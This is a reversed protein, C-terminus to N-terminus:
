LKALNRLLRTSKKKTYNSKLKNVLLLLKLSSCFDFIASKNLVLWVKDKKLLEQLAWWTKHIKSSITKQKMKLKAAV